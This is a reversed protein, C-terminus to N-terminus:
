EIYNNIKGEMINEKILKYTKEFEEFRAYWFLDNYLETIQIKAKNELAKLVIM